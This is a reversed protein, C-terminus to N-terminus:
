QEYLTEVSFHEFKYDSVQTGLLLCNYASPGPVEASCFVAADQWTAARSASGAFPPWTGDPGGM